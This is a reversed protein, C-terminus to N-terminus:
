PARQRQEATQRLAHPQIEHLGLLVLRAVDQQKERSEGRDGRGLILSGARGGALKEPIRTKSPLVIVILPVASLRSCTSGRDPLAVVGEVQAVAAFGDAHDRHPFGPALRDM